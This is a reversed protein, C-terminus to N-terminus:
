WPQGSRTRHAIQAPNLAGQASSAAWIVPSVSRPPTPEPWGRTALTRRLQQVV